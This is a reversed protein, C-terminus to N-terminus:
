TDGLKMFTAATENINTGGLFSISSAAEVKFKVKQNSVNTIDLIASNFTSAYSWSASGFYNYKVAIESYSSNDSTHYIQGGAYRVATNDKRCSMEFVVQWIGTSPFSFVGSSESMGTGIKSFSHDNREWNATLFASNTDTSSNIRWQDAETIGLLGDPSITFTKAANSTTSAPAKLEVTGGGSDATLKISSM